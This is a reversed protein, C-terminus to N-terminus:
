AHSIGRIKRTPLVIAIAIVLALVLPILVWALLVDPLLEVAPAGMRGLGLKFLSNGLPNVLVVGVIIGALGVTGFRTLYHGVLGRSTAGIARLSAIDDHERALILILFLTTVLFILGVAAIAALLAIVGLQSSAAGFIQQSVDSVNNM